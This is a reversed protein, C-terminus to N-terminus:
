VVNVVLGTTIRDQGTVLALVRVHAALLLHKLPVGLRRSLSELQEALDNDLTREEM